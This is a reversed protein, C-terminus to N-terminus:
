SESRDNNQLLPQRDKNNNVIDIGDNKEDDDENDGGHQKDWLYMIEKKAPFNEFFWVSIIDIIKYGGFVNAILVASVNYIDDYSDIITEGNVFGIIGMSLYGAFSAFVTSLLIFHIVFFDETFHDLKDHWDQCQSISFCLWIYADYEQEIDIDLAMHLKFKLQKIHQIDGMRNMLNKYKERETQTLQSQNGEIQPKWHKRWLLELNRKTKFSKKRAMKAKRGYWGDMFICISLVVFFSIIAIEIPYITDLIKFYHICITILIVNVILGLTLIFKSRPKLNRCKPRDDWCDKLCFISIPMTFIVITIIAGLNTGESIGQGNERLFNIIPGSSIEMLFDSVEQYEEEDKALKDIQKKAAM